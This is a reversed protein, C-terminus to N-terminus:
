TLEMYNKLNCMANDHDHSQYILRSPVSQDDINYAFMSLIKTPIVSNTVILNIHVDNLQISVQKTINGVSVQKIVNNLIFFNYLANFSLKEQM